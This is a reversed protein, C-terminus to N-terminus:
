QVAEQPLVTKNMGIKVAARGATFLSVEEKEKREKGNQDMGGGGGRGQNEV